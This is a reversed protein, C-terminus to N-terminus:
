KSRGAGLMERVREDIIAQKVDASGREQIEGCIRRIKTELVRLELEQLERVHVLCSEFLSQVQSTSEFRDVAEKCLLRDVLTEYWAPISPATICLSRHPHDTIKRLIGYSTEGRFPAMGRTAAFEHRVKEAAWVVLEHDYQQEIAPDSAHVQADLMRIADSGGLPAPHRRVGAMFKIVIHRAITDVWRRFSADRGDASWQDVSTAIALLIQQTADAVHHSPVGLRTALHQLFPEYAQAFAWWASQDNPDRLRM